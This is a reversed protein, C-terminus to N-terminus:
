ASILGQPAQVAGRLEQGVGLEENGDVHLPFRDEARLDFAGLACQFIEQLELEVGTSHTGGPIDFLDDIVHGGHVIAQLPELLKWQREAQDPLDM